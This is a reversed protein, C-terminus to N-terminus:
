YEEKGIINVNPIAGLRGSDYTRSYMKKDIEPFELLSYIESSEDAKNNKRNIFWYADKFFPEMDLFGLEHTTMILQSGDKINDLFKSVMKMVLVPHLSCEIEDVIVTKGCNISPAIVGTSYQPIERRGSLALYLSVIRQTGTSEFHVMRGMLDHKHNFYVTEALLTGNENKDVFLDGDHFTFVMSGIEEKLIAIIKAELEFYSEDLTNTYQICFADDDIDELESNLGTINIDFNKMEETFKPLFEKGVVMSINPYEFSNVILYSYFWTYLTRCDENESFNYQLFSTSDGSEIIGLYGEFQESLEECITQKSRDGYPRQISYLAVQHGNASKYLWESTIYQDEDVEIGYQYLIGNIEVIYEFYAPDKSISGDVNRHLYTTPIKEDYSLYGKTIMGKSFVISKVFNSKGAANPGYVFSTRLASKNEICNATGKSVVSSRMSFRQIEDFTLFHGVYFDILMIM